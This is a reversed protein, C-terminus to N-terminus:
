ACCDDERRRIFRLNLLHGLVLSLGSFISIIVSWLLESDHSIKNASEHAEEHHHEGSHVVSSKVPISAIEENHASHNEAEHQERHGHAGHHHDSAMEIAQASLLGIVGVIFLSIVATSRVKRWSVIGASAAFAIAFATFLWETEHSLLLGLGLASFLAPIIASIACHLACLSSAVMGFRDLKM